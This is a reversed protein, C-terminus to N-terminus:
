SDTTHRLHSTPYYRRRFLCDMDNRELWDTFSSCYFRNMTETHDSQSDINHACKPPCHRSFICQKVREKFINQLCLDVSVGAISKQSTQGPNCVYAPNMDWTCQWRHTRQDVVPAVDAARKILCKQLQVKKLWKVKRDLMPTAWFCPVTHTHTHTHTHTGGQIQLTSHFQNM